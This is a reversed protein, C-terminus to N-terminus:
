IVGWVACIVALLGKDSVLWHIKPLCGWDCRVVVYIINGFGIEHFLDDVGRMDRRDDKIEPSRPTARTFRKAGCQLRRHIGCAAFNFHGLDVHVLVLPYRALHPHLGDRGHEGKM